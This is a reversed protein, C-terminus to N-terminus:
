MRKLVAAWFHITAWVITGIALLDFWGIRNWPMATNPATEPEMNDRQLTAIAAVPELALVATDIAPALEGALEPTPLFRGRWSPIAPTLPAAEPDPVYQSIGRLHRHFAAIAATFMFFTPRYGFDVMWSSVLYSVVLVFLCRRIREDDDTSTKATILTRLNCFLVGLFCFLGVKGLEAGIQVYSSHAAKNYHHVAKFDKLWQGYGIGTTRTQLRNLGHTFAVVRGMIAGDSKARDLETMRPLKWLVAGGFSIAAVIIIIQVAKPRGFTQTALVTAATCLFAGKSLTLYICLLPLLILTIGLCKVVVPRKWVFLFYIMPIAPVVNHGLANPNKFISLNITLRGQMRGNTIEYSGLPDFGYESAVALAALAVVLLAWWGVFQRIRPTTTLTQVIVVYFVALPFVAKCTEWHADSASIIWAFFALMMWDHPTRLLDGLRLSRERFFLTVLAMIMVLQVFHLKSFIAGWEQPRIYYM